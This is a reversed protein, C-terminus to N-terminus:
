TSRASRSRASGRHLPRASQADAPQAQAFRNRGPRDRRSAVIAAEPLDQDAPSSAPVECSRMATLRRGARPAPRIRNSSISSILRRQGVAVLADLPQRLRGRGALLVHHGRGTAQRLSGGRGRRDAGPAARPALSRDVGIMSVASVCSAPRSASMALSVPSTSRARVVIPPRSSGFHPTLASDGFPWFPMISLSNVRASTFSRSRNARDSARPLPSKSADERVTKPPAAPRSVARSPQWPRRQIRDIASLTRRSIALSWRFLENVQIHRPM